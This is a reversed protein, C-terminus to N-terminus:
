QQGGKLANRFKDVTSNVIDVVSDSSITAGTIAEIEYASQAEKKTVQLDETASKGAFQERWSKEVIRNGLGPTEKQSLIYLGTVKTARKNLGILVEIKDAFGQGGGPVVWGVQAGSGDQVPYASVSAIQKLGSSDAGEPVLKPIQSFTEELKNADIRPKLAKQVGALSAGFILALLLVLWATTLYNNKM